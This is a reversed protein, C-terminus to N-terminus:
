VAPAQPVSEEGSAPATTEPPPAIPATPTASPDPQTALPEQTAGPQPQGVVQKGQDAAAPSSPPDSSASGEGNMESNKYEGSSSLTSRIEEDPPSGAASDDSNHILETFTAASIPADDM